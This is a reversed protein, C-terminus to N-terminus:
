ESAAKSIDAEALNPTSIPVSPLVGEMELQYEKMMEDYTSERARKKDNLFRGLELNNKRNLEVIQRSEENLERFSNVVTELRQITEETMGKERSGTFTNFSLLLIMLAMLGVLTGFQVSSWALKKDEDAM